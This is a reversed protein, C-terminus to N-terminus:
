KLNQDNGSQLMRYAESKSVGFERAAQKLAAKREIGEAELDDIRKKLGVESSVVPKANDDARDIVLVYEGRPNASFLQNKIADLDGRIIEEHLKTLERVIAAKRNGLIDLCDEISATIRHPTEYFALTAPVASVASLRRRRENKRAPLFGGFFISDTALGSIIVANIFASAGPIPVINVGAQIAAKVIEHGPDNIAPTGADSIVAVSSGSTLANILEDTRDKENHTHYSVTKTKIDYHNLLKASHRTDECAIIEVSSLVDLARHTIDSLNGIPTAVLYLIGNM